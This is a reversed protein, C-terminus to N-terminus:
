DLHVDKGKEISEEIENVLKELGARFEDLNESTVKSPLYTSYKVLFVASKTRGKADQIAEIAEIKMQNAEQIQYQLQGITARDKEYSLMSPIWPGPEGIARQNILEPVDGYQAVEKQIDKYVKNRQSYLQSYIEKYIERLESYAPFFQDDWRQVVSRSDILNHLDTLKQETQNEQFTGIQNSFAEISSILRLATKFEELYGKKIFEDVADAHSMASQFVDYHERFANVSASPRKKNFVDSIRTLGDTLSEDILLSAGTARAILLEMKRALNDLETQITQYLTTTTDDVKLDFLIDIKSQADKREELALGGEGPVFEAKNFSGSRTLAEKALRTGPDYFLNGGYEVAIQGARFLAALVIRVLVPNWGYPVSQFYDTLARGTTEQGYEVRLQIADLVEQVVPLHTKINGQSDWLNMDPEIDALNEPTAALMKEISAENVRFEALHFKTYVHPIVKSLERNYITNLNTTQGNLDTEDGQFVIAGSYLARSFASRLQNRVSEAETQKERLIVIEEKNQERGLRRNIVTDLRILRRVDPILDSIEGPLWFVTIPEVPSVVDRINEHDIGGLIVGVPSHIELEIDGKSHIEEGDARIKIDFVALGREYNLRGLGSLADQLLKRSERRVDNNKVDVASIEEEVNREAASLYKYIGDVLSVYKAEKLRLLADEVTSKFEQYDRSLNPMMLRTLNELNCPIWDLQQLVYLSKLAKIPEFAGGDIRDQVENISRRDQSSVETAIQDFIEYLTVVRGPDSDAFNTDKSALVGQVVGIMSREGGTLQITAGGRARIRAFADQMIQFHMPLFPYDRVFRDEDPMTLQRNIEELRGILNIVGEYSSYLSQVADEGTPRKKLIREEVVLEINESTLELRLDFRDKIKSFEAQRRRVGEIVDELKEQATVVLWLRGKGHISFEESLSQLELLKQDDEGIFQGVEDVIFVLHSSKERNTEQISQLYETLERALVGPGMEMGAKVDELAKEAREDTKYRKPATTKLAEIISSRVILYNDRIEEWPKGEIEQVNKVFEEYIGEEMLFLEFRGIWPDRSLGRYELYKRYLIESISDPNILDQEAKIQLSVVQNDFYNRVRTLYGELEKERGLGSIRTEFLDIAEKGEVTPNSLLHGIVKAMHSKGSGFFGYIWVGIKESPDTEPTQTEVYQEFFDAICEMVSPTVVYERVEQAIEAEEPEDMKIVITIERDIENTFLDRITM